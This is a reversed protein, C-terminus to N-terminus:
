LTARLIQGGDVVITQGTIWSALPSALFLVANAVEDTRGHRGFPIGRVVEDYLARDETKVLDWYGGPTEISGPAVGNVRIGKGALAAAQSTTYQILAAKAAAYPQDSSAPKMGSISSINVIAGGGAKAMVPVAARSARATAMLDVALCAAWNAEEDANGYGSANNVLIDIGGFATGAEGIYRAVAAGDALDCRAAHVKGGFRALEARADALGEEGRACISVAAGAEAFQRAIQRGISRSGGTVVARKGKFDFSM